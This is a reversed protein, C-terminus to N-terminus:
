IFGMVNLCRAWEGNIYNGHCHSVTSLLKIVMDTIGMFLSVGKATVMHSKGKCLTISVTMLLFLNVIIVKFNPAGWGTLIKELIIIVKKLRNNNGYM